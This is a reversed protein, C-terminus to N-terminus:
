PLERLFDLVLDLSAPGEEPLTAATTAPRSAAPAAPRSPAQPLEAVSGPPISALLEAPPIVEGVPPEPPSIPAGAGSSILEGVFGDEIDYSCRGLYVQPGLVLGELRALEAETLVKGLMHWGDDGNRVSIFRCAPVLRFVAQEPLITLTREQLTVRGRQELRAIGERSVFLHTRMSPAVEALAAATSTAPPM